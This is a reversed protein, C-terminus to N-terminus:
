NKWFVSSFIVLLTLFELRGLLMGFSLAWKAINSLSSFTGAPGIIDGLGPGVNSLATAAGTISTLLDLGTMALIASLIVWCIVLMFIFSVSSSIIEPSVVRNNYRQRVVIRPHLATMFQEKVIGGLLQLRFIKIGGSTSGSCGGIFTCFFFILIALAGWTQYDSSAFGCTTIISVLNFTAFTIAQFLPIHETLMLQITLISSTLFIILFLGRVQKDKHLTFKRHATFRVFLVFPIAGALMFVIAVWYSALNHFQGFSLDSTSYGGTSVTTMAHNIANFWDMGSLWYLLACLLSLGLYCYVMTKILKHAQPMAKESWDSSETKFLRMGGVHLFPLIAVAMGIVGIGGMWNLLSRWLLLDPAMQDLGSLVSSGTTTVGSVSEFIADTLTLPQNILLFPLSGFISIGVWAVSTTLFVQRPVIININASRGIWLCVIGSASTIASSLFFPLQDGTSYVSSLVLPWLMFFSQINLIVGLILLTPGFLKM